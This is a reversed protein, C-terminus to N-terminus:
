PRTLNAESYIVAGINSTLTVTVTLTPNTAWQTILQQMFGTASGSALTDGQTLVPSTSGVTAVYTYAWQTFPSNDDAWFANVYYKIPPTNSKATGIIGDNTPTGAPLTTTTSSSTTTTSGSSATAAAVPLAMSSLGVAVVGAGVAGFALAKRRSVATEDTGGAITVLGAAALTELAPSIETEIQGSAVLEFCRAVDGTLTHAVLGASDLLVIEDGVHEIRLGDNITAAVKANMKSGKQTESIDM